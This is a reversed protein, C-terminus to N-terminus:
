AGSRAVRGVLPASVVVSLAVLGLAGLASGIYQVVAGVAFGGSMVPALLGAASLGAVIAALALPIAIEAIRARQLASVTAGAVHQSRYVRAQDLVRATQTVGTSVAALVAAIGLTLLGGTHLATSLAREAPTEDMNGFMSTLTLFGAIVLGFTIGSVARWGARPDAALRRAGVLLAPGPAIAAIIRAVVWVVFPGVINVSGLVLAMLIALVAILVGIGNPIGGVVQPLIQFAAIFLVILAAWVILRVVSMRVIRSDRAVGLPSIAVGALGIGASIGALLTAAIVLVPYAWLPMLLEGFTFPTMGFDLATLAPTVALHALLGLLSGVLAQALVDAVALAGVQATTGGVLRVAALDRERRSLSLKAAASGLGMASPVLLVTAVIACTMLFSANSAEATPPGDGVPSAAARSAFAGLGGLVTALIGTSATFGIIPLATAIGGRRRLVLPATHLLSM